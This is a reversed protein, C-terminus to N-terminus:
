PPRGHLIPWVGRGEVSEQASGAEFIKKLGQDPQYVEVRGNERGASDDRTGVLAFEDGGQGTINGM